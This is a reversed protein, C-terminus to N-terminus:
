RVQAAEYSGILAKATQSWCFNQARSRANDAMRLRRPHTDLLGSLVQAWQQPDHNEVLLGTSDHNIAASLGGVDAAVVPTGCAQAEMAVLGFSESYSPVAVIDAARYVERLSLAPRPRLFRVRDTLGLQAVLTPLSYPTEIGNGSLGGVVLLFLPRAPDAKVIEAVAKVLVDPAKLPQIRGVFALVQASQPLGLSRRARETGGAGGSSFTDLDVGPTVVDIARMDADYFSVLERAEQDSNVVLRSASDVVQQEVIRRSEPEPKDGAALSSNKVAALTHATHVLPIDWRQAVLSGVQGSLWYHSHIVDWKVDSKDGAELMGQAFPVLQTPLDEKDIGDFPGAQIHHVRVGPEVQAIQPLGMHAARTFVDVQMGQRALHIASNYVYVNMGGADGSGPQDLPSTHMSILAVSTMSSM